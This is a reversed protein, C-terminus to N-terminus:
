LKLFLAHNAFRYQYGSRCLSHPSGNGALQVRSAGIDHHM